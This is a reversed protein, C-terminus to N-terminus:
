FDSRHLPTDLELHGGPLSDIRKGDIRVAVADIGPLATLTWVLAKFEGTEGFSGTQTKVEASLDVTVTSATVNISLVHTGVPFRVAQTTSPPGAIAQTASYLAANHLHEAASEGKAQPRMSVPWPVETKGDTASTYFVTIQDGIPSSQHKALYFWSGAAVVVLLGILFFVRSSRM